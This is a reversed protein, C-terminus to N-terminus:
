FRLKSSVKPAMQNLKAGLAPSKGWPIEPRHGQLGTHRTRASWLLGSWWQPSTSDLQDTVKFWQHEQRKFGRLLATERGSPLRCKHLCNQGAGCQLSCSQEGKTTGRIRVMIAPKPIKRPARGGVPCFHLRRRPGPKVQMKLKIQLQRSEHELPVTVDSAAGPSNVTSM